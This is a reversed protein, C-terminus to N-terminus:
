RGGLVMFAILRALLGSVARLRRLRGLPWHRANEVTCLPPGDISPQDFSLVVSACWGPFKDATLAVM